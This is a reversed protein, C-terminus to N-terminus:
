RRAEANRPLDVLFGEPEYETHTLAPVLLPAPEFRRFRPPVAPFQDLQKFSSHAQGHLTNVYAPRNAM